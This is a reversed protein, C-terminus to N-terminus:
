WCSTQGARSDAIQMLWRNTAASAGLALGGMYAAVILGVEAYLSGHFMQFAFLIVIELLM